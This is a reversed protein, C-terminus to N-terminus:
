LGIRFLGFRCGMGLVSAVHGARKRWIVSGVDVSGGRRADDVFPRMGVFAVRSAHAMRGVGVFAVGVVSAM